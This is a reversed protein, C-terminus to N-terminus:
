KWDIFMNDYSSDWKGKTKKVLSLGESVLFLGFGLYTTMEYNM